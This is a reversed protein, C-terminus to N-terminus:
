AFNGIGKTNKLEIGVFLEGVDIDALAKLAMANVTVIIDTDATYVFNSATNVKHIVETGNENAETATLFRTASGADGVSVTNSNFAADSADKLPTKLFFVCRGVFDGPKAKAIVFTQATNAVAQTLDEATIKAILDVGLAIKEPLGPIYTKM